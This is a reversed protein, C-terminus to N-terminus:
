AGGFASVNVLSKHSPDLLQEKPLNDFLAYREAFPLFKSGRPNLCNYFLM